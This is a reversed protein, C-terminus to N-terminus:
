LTWVAKWCSSLSKVADRRGRVQLRHKMGSLIGEITDVRKTTPTPPLQLLATDIPELKRATKKAGASVTLKMHSKVVDGSREAQIGHLLPHAMAFKLSAVAGASNATLAGTFVPLRAPDLGLAVASRITPDNIDSWPWAQATESEGPTACKARNENRPEALGIGTIFTRDECDDDEKDGDPPRRDDGCGALVDSGRWCEIEAEVRQFAAVVAQPTVQPMISAALIDEHGPDSKVIVSSSNHAYLPGLSPKPYHTQHFQLKDLLASRRWVDAAGPEGQVENEKGPKSGEQRWVPLRVGELRGRWIRAVPNGALILTKLGQLGELNSLAEFNAISNHSLDLFELSPFSGDAAVRGPITEIQNDALDVRRLRKLACLPRLVGSRLFNSQAKLKWLSPFPGLVLPLARLDNGSIDLEMLRPLRSLPSNGSVLVDASLRNFSLDLVELSEFAGEQLRGLSRLGNASLALKRLSVLGCLQGMEKIRNDSLSVDRLNVFFPLDAEEVEEIDLGEVEVTHVDEPMVEHAAGVLMFGDLKPPVPPPDPAAPVPLRCRANGDESGKRRSRSSRFSQSSAVHPVDPVLTQVAVGNRSRFRLIDVQPMLPHKDAMFGEVMNAVSDSFGRYLYGAGTGVGGGGEAGQGGCGGGSAEGGTPPLTTAAM